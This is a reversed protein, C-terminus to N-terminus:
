GDSKAHVGSQVLHPVVSLNWDLVMGEATKVAAERSMLTEVLYLAPDYSKAGGVSTIFKGDVVFEQDFRVDISPYKEAFRERDGPFTTATRNTLLGTQALPFAGDCLSVIWSASEATSRIWDILRDDNLDSSMSNNTSPILLIDITPSNEFSYHADITLGEFTTVSEGDPSVIFPRIYVSDDRFVTHHLIDFPAMMESNFVTETVLIAANLVTRDDEPIAEQYEASEASAAYQNELGPGPNRVGWIIAAGGALLSLTIITIQYVPNKVSM